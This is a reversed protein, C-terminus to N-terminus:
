RLNGEKGDMMLHWFGPSPHLAFVTQSWSASQGWFECSDTGPPSYLLKKGWDFGEM